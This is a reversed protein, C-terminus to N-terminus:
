CSQILNALVLRCLQSSHGCTLFLRSNICYVFAARLPGDLIQSNYNYHHFISWLLHDFFIDEKPPGVNFFFFLKNEHFLVTRSPHYLLWLSDTFSVFFVISTKQNISYLKKNDLYMSVLTGILTEIYKKVLKARSIYSM